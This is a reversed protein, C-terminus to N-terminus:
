GPYAGDNEPQGPRVQQCRGFAALYEEAAAHTPTVLAIGSPAAQVAVRVDGSVAREQPLAFSRGHLRYPWRVEVLGVVGLLRDRTGILALRPLSVSALGSPSSM